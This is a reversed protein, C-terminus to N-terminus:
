ALARKLRSIARRVSPRSELVENKWVLSMSRNMAKIGDATVHAFREEPLSKAAITPLFAAATGSEVASILMSFSQVQLVPRLNLGLAAATTKVNKAFFADGVLEVFPLPKGEFVEAGERSRLLTRPVALVYQLTTIVEHQVDENIVESRIIALDLTGTLIERLASEAPLTRLDFRLPPDGSMLEAVHPMVLWRLVADSAGLAVSEAAGTAANMVDDLSGFFTHAALVVRRGNENLKLTKGTRDFLSIDLAEELAKLQRSFQSQRNPDPGAASVISGAGVVSCLTQLREISIGALAASKFAM